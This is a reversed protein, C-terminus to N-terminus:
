DQFIGPINISFGVEPNIKLYANTKPNVYNITFGTNKSFNAVLSDGLDCLPDLWSPLEILNKAGVVNLQEEKTLETIM